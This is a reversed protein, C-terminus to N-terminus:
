DDREGDKGRQLNEAASSGGWGESDKGALGERKTDRLLTFFYFRGKQNALSSPENASEDAQERKKRETM